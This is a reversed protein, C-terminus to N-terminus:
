LHEITILLKTGLVCLKQSIRSTVICHGQFGPLPDSVSMPVSVYRDAM